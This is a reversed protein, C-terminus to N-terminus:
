GGVLFFLLLATGLPVFLNDWGSRFLAELITAGLATLLSIYFLEGPSWSFSFFLILVLALFSTGLMVLTGVWTKVHQIVPIRRKGWKKGAIAALGDGWAMVMIGAALFPFEGEGWFLFVLIFLSLAYFVTGRNSSSTGEMAKFIKKKGSLYNIGVFTAPPLLAWWGSGILFRAFFIWHGVGIHILKRTIAPNLFRKTRLVEAIGILLFVFIFSFIVGMFDHM